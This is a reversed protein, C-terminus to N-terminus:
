ITTNYTYVVVLLLLLLLFSCAAPPHIFVRRAFNYILLLLLSSGIEFKVFWLFGGFCPGFDIIKALFLPKRSNISFIRKKRV